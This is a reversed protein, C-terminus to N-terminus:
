RKKGGSHTVAGLYASGVQAAYKELVGSAAAAPRRPKWAKRRAALAAESIRLELTGSAADILIADGNKVLALPGGVAAEPSVYGIMMGRTAGSFRGDTLLAVQEGMGQGYILATVGLMERMGPGGRPGEYRIVLVEGAKYARRKVVETCAEESDFVRARGEFVLSNLGAVKILAGEPALNGKLVVLGGSSLIPIERVVQGDASRSNKLEAELTNGSLALCEGHLAGRELLAKLVTYVGGVAHLDKALFRGGPKMDAILPTRKAVRAFDDMSFRIGAEHAIAPIHLAANTSGGTAAVAACANELSKKTVLDRPLPGDEKLLRMVARGATRVLDKRQPAVAPMTASGPLALGLTESVMAMTNATFQGPCSGLTPICARELAHLEDVAMDGALVAGVAEYTDLVTVDRGKWRGPLAAGGYVFVSPLNLRVMAMMMGPLTKDCGAFTILADYAHGRAVAEVGDAILDRSVLSYRMGGHNMSMSDAVSISAFDFPVGGAERVAECAVEALQGLLANCPTVRGATSAVGVFPKGIDAQSLGLARLFARHPARDLGEVTVRSPLIPVTKRTSV